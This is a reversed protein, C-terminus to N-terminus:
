WVKAIAESGAGLSFAIIIAFAADPASLLLGPSAAEARFTVPM